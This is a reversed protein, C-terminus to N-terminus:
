VGGVFGWRDGELALRYVHRERRPAAGPLSVEVDEGVEASFRDVRIQWALVRAAGEVRPLSAALRRGAAARDEDGDRYGAALLAQYAPVDRRQQADHRRFLALLVGRLRDFQDGEACWGAACRAVHFRERGLYALSASQDRWSVRGEATLMAVVTARGGEAEVVVDAFRVSSLEAVGGSRFGYVDGLHAREQASLARRIQTEASELSTGCSAFRGGAALLVIAVVGTAAVPVLYPAGRRRSSM